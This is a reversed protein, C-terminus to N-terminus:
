SDDHDHLAGAPQSHGPDPPASPVLPRFHGLFMAASEGVLRTWRDGGPDNALQQSVLGTVLAIWLDAQRQDAIGNRALVDRGSALARVAPAYSEPSPEFGPLTRQFLLQYRPLDIACFEFFRRAQAVLLDGPDQCDYPAAMTDAFQAAAQSFMADYIANKSGFYAYM